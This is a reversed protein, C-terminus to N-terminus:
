KNATLDPRLRVAEGLYVPQVASQPLPTNWHILVRVCCSLAAPVPIEQSCMLPVSTWGLQRAAAAPFASRLDPTLTFWASAIDEPALSPNAALIAQLLERTAALIAQPTDQPVCNAGRIGRVPMDEELLKEKKSQLSHRCDFFIHTFAGLFCFVQPRQRGCTQTPSSSGSGSISRQRCGTIQRRLLLLLPVLPLTIEYQTCQLL